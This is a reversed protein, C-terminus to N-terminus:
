RSIQNIWAFLEDLDYDGSHPKGWPLAFDVHAGTNQLKTALIVPVALSTDKDYAGHRIRWYASTHVQKQVIYNMPNMMKVIHADALTGKATSHEFGYATFHQKDIQETGFEQNEGSSLDLADFAPPTKMRQLYVLYDDYNIDIVRQGERKIWTYQSLDQGQDIATQASKILYQKILDKFSGNGDQALQLPQKQPSVLGLQNVYNPFQAKLDNSVLIQAQSLVGATEKREVKYDLMSMNIKKYDHISNFQWEYAMDAHDLNTIPCYASVAFIRDSTNAAGLKKLYPLYDKSDGTAGLLASMAGGASTGNSIIKNADGPMKKDNYKLYRIAAKLDVIAAPAKGTTSTRGRAGASAVVYGQYLAYAATSPPNATEIPKNQGTPGRGGMKRGVLTAPQAPMYGGVENPFFIPANQANFGNVEQQNFYADPIYINMVEYKIDVPNKVYVINTYARVKLPKGNIELQELQYNQPNFDLTYPKQTTTSAMVTTSLGCAMTLAIITNKMM